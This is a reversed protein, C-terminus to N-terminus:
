SDLVYSLGMFAASEDGRETLVDHVLGTQATALYLCSHRQIGAADRLLRNLKAADARRDSDLSDDPLVIQRNARGLLDLDADPWGESRSRRDLDQGMAVAAVEGDEDDAEDDCVRSSAARAEAAFAYVDLRRALEGAGGLSRILPWRVEGAELADVAARIAASTSPYDDKTGSPGPEPRASPEPQARPPLYGRARMDRTLLYHARSHGNFSLFDLVLAAAARDPGRVLPSGDPPSFPSDERRLKLKAKLKSLLVAEPESLRKDAPTSPSTSPLGVLKPVPIPPPLDSFAEHQPDLTARIGDRVAQVHEVINYRFPGTLNIAVSEEENRMGVAPYLGPPMKSFAHGLLKGNRTFFARGITMDLGCGVVDGTNWPESFDRGDGRGEFTKGDDAHWGWSGKNWGVLRRHDCEPRTWGVSIHGQSGINLIEVEYYFVGVGPPIPASTHLSCADTDEKSLRDGAEPRFSVVPRWVGEREEVTLDLFSTKMPDRSRPPCEFMTPLKANPSLTTLLLYGPRENDPAHSPEVHRRRKSDGEMEDDDRQRRRGDDGRSPRRRNMRGRTLTSNADPPAGWGDVEFMDVLMQQGPYEVSATRFTGWGDDDEDSEVAGLREWIHDDAGGPPDIDSPDFGYIRRPPRRLITSAMRGNNDWGSIPHPGLSMPGRNLHRDRIAQAAQRYEQAIARNEARRRVPDYGARRASEVAENWVDREIGDNPFSMGLRREPSTGLLGSITLASHAETGALTHASLAHALERAELEALNMHNIDQHDPRSM